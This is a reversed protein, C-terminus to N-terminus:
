HRLSGIPTVGAAADLPVRQRHLVMSRHLDRIASSGTGVFFFPLVGHILCALGGAVMRIGFRTATGLHQWYSEGVSEPHETFSWRAM